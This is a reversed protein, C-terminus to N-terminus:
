ANHDLGKIPGAYTSGKPARVGKPTDGFRSRFLRNFHSIDSFGAQLAVDCIRVDSKGQATLLAFAHNLRLETVHATFTTGSIELMRQLYRTSIQLRRAVKSLSLEPDSFHTALYDFITHTHAAVVASLTSEGVSGHRSATLVVLDIVHRRVITHNDGFTTLGSRELSRIYSRLLQMFDSKGWLRQMLVDEFRAGRAEWETPPILMDFLVSSERWWVGGTASMLMMTADGPALQVERGLHRATLKGSQAVVFGIRDDEDRLLDEDRFLLGPSLAARVIRLEPLIPKVSARFAPGPLPEFDVRLYRRAYQERWERIPDPQLTTASGRAASIATPWELLIRKRSM